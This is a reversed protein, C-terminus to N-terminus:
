RGYIMYTVLVVELHHSIFYFSLYFQLQRYELPIKICSSYVLYLLPATAAHSTTYCTFFYLVGLHPLSFSFFFGLTFAAARISLCVSAFGFIRVFLIFYIIIYYSSHYIYTHIFYKPLLYPLLRSPMTIILGFCFPTTPPTYTLLHPRFLIVYFLLFL